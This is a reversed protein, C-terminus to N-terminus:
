SNEMPLFISSKARSKERKIFPNTVRKETPTINSTLDSLSERKSIKLRVSQVTKQMSSSPQIKGMRTYFGKTIVTAQKSRVQSMGSLRTEMLFERKM